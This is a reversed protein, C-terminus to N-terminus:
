VKKDGLKVAIVLDTQLNNHTTGRGRLSMPGRVGLSFPAQKLIGGGSTTVTSIYQENASDPSYTNIVNDEGILSNIASTRRSVAAIRNLTFCTGPRVKGATTMNNHTVTVVDGPALNLLGSITIEQPDTTGEIKPHSVIKAVGNVLISGTLVPIDNTAHNSACIGVVTAMYVGSLVDSQELVKFEGTGQYFSINNSALTTFTPSSYNGAKFVNKASGAALANTSTSSVVSIYSDNLDNERRLSDDLLRYIVLSSGAVLKTGSASSDTGAWTNQMGIKDGVECELIIFSTYENPDVTTPVRPDASWVAAGNKHVQTEM